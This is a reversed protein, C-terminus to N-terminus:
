FQYSASFTLGHRQYNAGRPIRTWNKQLNVNVSWHTDISHTFGASVTQTNGDLRYIDRDAGFSNDPRIARAIAYNYALDAKTTVLVDGRRMAYAINWISSTSQAFDLNLKYVRNSTEFTTGPVYYEVREQHDAHNKEIAASAWVQIHESLRKSVKLEIQHWLANRETDRFAHRELSMGLNVIPAYPGIGFKNKANLQLGAGSHSLGTLQNFSENSLKAAYSLSFNSEDIFHQRGFSFSTMLSTDSAMYPSKANGLNSDYRLGADFQAFNETQATASKAALLAITLSLLLRRPPILPLHLFM